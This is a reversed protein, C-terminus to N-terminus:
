RPRSGPRRTSSSTTTRARLSRTSRASSSSADGREGPRAPEARAASQRGVRAAGPVGRAEGRRALRGLKVLDYITREPSLGLASGSTASSCTSTSSRAGPRGDRRARGRPEVATLTKGTGGKPGLVCIVPAPGRAPRALAAGQKRAVAKQLAFESRSGADRAPSVIDDAGMEFVRRVFGNPSGECLVVVPRDPSSSSRPSEVLYSRRTRTAPARSM